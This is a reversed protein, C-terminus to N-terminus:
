HLCRTLQVQAEVLLLLRVQHFEYEVPSRRHTTTAEIKNRCLAQDDVDNLLEQSSLGLKICTVLMVNDFTWNFHLFLGIFVDVEMGHVQCLRQSQSAALLYSM